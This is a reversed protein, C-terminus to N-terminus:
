GQRRSRTSSEARPPATTHSASNRIFASTRMLAPECTHSQPSKSRKRMSLPTECQRWVSETFLLRAPVQNVRLQSFRPPCEGITGLHSFFNGNRTIVGRRHFSDGVITEIAVIAFHQRHNFRFVGTAIETMLLQPSRMFPQRLFFAIILCRGLM